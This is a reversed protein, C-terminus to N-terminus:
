AAAAEVSPRRRRAPVAPPEILTWLPGVVGTGCRHDVGCRAATNEDPLVTRFSGGCMVCGATLLVGTRALAGLSVTITV